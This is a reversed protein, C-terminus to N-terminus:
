LYEEKGAKKLKALLDKVQHAKQRNCILIADDTDIVVVNELGITAVLKDNAYVLCDKDEHSIHHGRSVLKNNNIESLLEFLTSWNGIDSWGFNGPVVLIDKTKEMIGYDISINETKSYNRNLTELYNSQEYANSITELASYTKPIYEKMLKMFHDTAWVFTGSNWFYQGSKVYDTAHSLDPKEVFRKVQYATLAEDKFEEGIQIYGLGTDPRSPTIGITIIKQPYKTCLDTTYKLTDLFLQDNRIAHDAPLFAAIAGRDRQQLLTSVLGCAAANGNAFPEIIYNEKPIEPLHKKIEEIYEPTTSIIVQEPKILPKLREYTEQILSRNSILNQLQKPLKKRSLPWLRTGQGGAMIVTYLM